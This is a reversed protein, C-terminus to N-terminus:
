GTQEESMIKDAVRERARLAAQALQAHDITGDPRRAAAFLEEDGSALLAQLITDAEQLAQERTKM